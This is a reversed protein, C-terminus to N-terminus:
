GNSLWSPFRMNKSSRLNIDFYVSIIRITFIMALGLKMAAGEGVIPYIFWKFIVGAFAAM